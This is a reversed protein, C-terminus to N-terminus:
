SVEMEGVFFSASLHQHIYIYENLLTHTHILTNLHACVLVDVCVCVCYTVSFCTSYLFLVVVVFIVFCVCFWYFGIFNFRFFLFFRVLVKTNQCNNDKKIIWNVSISCISPDILFLQGKMQVNTQGDTWRDRHRSLM